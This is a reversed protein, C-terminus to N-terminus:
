LLILNARQTIIIRLHITLVESLEAYRLYYLKLYDPVKHQL